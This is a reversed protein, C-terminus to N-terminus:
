ARHTGKRQINGIANFRFYYVGGRGRPRLAPTAWEEKPNLAQRLGALYTDQAREKLSRTEEDKERLEIRTRSYKAFLNAYILIKNYRQVCIKRAFGFEM